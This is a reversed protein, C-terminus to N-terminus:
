RQTKESFLILLPLAKSDEMEMDCIGPCSRQQELAWGEETIRKESCGQVRQSRVGDSVEKEKM